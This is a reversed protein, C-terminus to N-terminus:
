QDESEIIPASFTGDHIDIKFLHVQGDPTVYPAIGIRKLVEIVIRVDRQAVRYYALEEQMYTESFGYENREPIYGNLLPELAFGPGAQKKMRPLFLARVGPSRGSRVVVDRYQRVLYFIQDPTKDVRVDSAGDPLFYDKMLKSRHDANSREVQRRFELYGAYGSLSQSTLSQHNLRFVVEVVYTGDPLREGKGNATFERVASGSRGVQGNHPLKSQDVVYVSAGPPTSAVYLGVQADRGRLGPKMPRQSTTSADPTAHTVPPVSSQKKLYALGDKFLPLVWWSTIVFCIIILVAAYFMKLALAFPDFATPKNSPARSPKRKRRRRSKSEEPQTVDRFLFELDSADQDPVEANRGCYSCRVVTGADEDRARVTHGCDAKFEIM